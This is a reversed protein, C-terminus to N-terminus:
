VDRTDKGGVVVDKKMRSLKPDVKEEVEREFWGEKFLRICMDFAEFHVDAGGDENVNLKCFRRMRCQIIMRARVLGLAIAEVMKEEDPYSLLILNEETGQQPPECIFAVEVKGEESVTGYM